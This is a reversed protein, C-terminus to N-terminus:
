VQYLLLQCGEHPGWGDNSELSELFDTDFLEDNQGVLIYEKPANDNPVMFDEHENKDPTSNQTDNSINLDKMMKDLQNLEIPDVMDKYQNLYHIAKVDEKHILLMGDQVLMMFQAM